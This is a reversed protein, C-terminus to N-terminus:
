FGFLIIDRLDLKARPIFRDRKKVFKGIFHGLMKLCHKEVIKVNPSPNFSSVSWRDSVVLGRVCLFLETMIIKGLLKENM